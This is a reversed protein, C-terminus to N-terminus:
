LQPYSQELLFLRTNSVLQKRSQEFLEMERQEEESLFPNVNQTKLSLNIAKLSRDAQRQARLIHNIQALYLSYPSVHVFLYMYLMCDHVSVHVYWYNILNVYMYM